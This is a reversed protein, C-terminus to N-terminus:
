STKASNDSVRITFNVTITAKTEVPQGNQLYPKFHWQRVAQQAATALISPGSVVRLNEIVGDAGVVAQLVVSGQVRTHQGLLPYTGDVAQRLEPVSATATSATLSERAAANTAPNGVSTGVSSVRKSNASIEVKASDSEPHVARHTDSAIVEIDVPPLIARRTAVAPKVPAAVDKRAPKVVTPPTSAKLASQSKPAPQNNATTAPTAPATNLNSPVVAPTPKAVSEPNTADAEIGDDTGLWFDRDKMVVVALAVLLLVLAVLLQRPQKRAPRSEYTDPETSQRLGLM